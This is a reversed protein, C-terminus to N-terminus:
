LLNNVNKEFEEVQHAERPFGELFFARANPYKGLEAIVLQQALENPILEGRKHLESAARWEPRKDKYRSIATRILDKSFFYNKLIIKQNKSAYM